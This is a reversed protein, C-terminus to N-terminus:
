SEEKEEPLGYKVLYAIIGIILIPWGIGFIVALFMGVIPPCDEVGDRWAYGLVATTFLAAIVYLIMFVMSVM